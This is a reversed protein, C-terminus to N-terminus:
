SLLGIFDGNSVASSLGSFDNSYAQYEELYNTAPQFSAPLLSTTANLQM